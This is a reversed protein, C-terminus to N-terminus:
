FMICGAAASLSVVLGCLAFQLSNSGSTQSTAPTSKGTENNSSSTGTKETTKKLGTIKQELQQNKEGMEKLKSEHDTSKRDLEEQLQQIKARNEGSREMEPGVVNEPEPGQVGARQKQQEFEQRAQVLAQERERLATRDRELEQQAQLLQQKDQRLEEQQEILASQDRELQQQQLRLAEERQQVSQQLRQQEAQLGELERTQQERLEQEQQLDSQQARISAQLQELENRPLNAVADEKVSFILRIDKYGYMNEHDFRGGFGEFRSMRRNQDDNQIEARTTEWSYVEGRSNRDNYLLKFTPGQIKIQWKTDVNSTHTHVGQLKVDESFLEADTSPDKVTIHYVDGENACMGLQSVGLLLISACVGM